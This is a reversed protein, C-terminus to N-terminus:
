AAAKVPLPVVNAAPAGKPAEKGAKTRNKGAKTAKVTMPRLAYFRKTHKSSVRSQYHKKIISESNGFQEATQGYSGTKRFYHSIATHRLVDDPWPKLEEGGNGRRGDYGISVKLKDFDKRWNAPYFPKDKYKELWSALTECIAVVRPRKTKTQNAELRIERDKLNVQAPTLRAAEFPRLGGFLCVAVYPALRGRRHREAARLLKGCEEIDLVAPPPREDKELRVAHCPNIATWRRKREMCWSFFRSVALRDNIKTAVSVKSRKDLYSSGTGSSAM